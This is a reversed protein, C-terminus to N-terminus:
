RRLEGGLASHQGEDRERGGGATGDGGAAGGPRVARRGVPLAAHLQQMRAYVARLVELGRHLEAESGEEAAVQRWPLVAHSFHEITLALHSSGVADEATCGGAGVVAVLVNGDSGDRRGSPALATEVLQGPELVIGFVPPIPPMPAVPQSSAADAAAAEGSSGVARADRPLDATTLLSRESAHMSERAACTVGHNQATM